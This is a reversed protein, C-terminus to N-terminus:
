QQIFATISESLSPIIKAVRDSNNKPLSTKLKSVVEKPFLGILADLCNTSTKEDGMIAAVNAANWLALVRMDHLIMSIYWRQALRDIKRGNTIAQTIEDKAAIHKLYQLYSPIVSAFADYRKRKETDSLGDVQVAMAAKTMLNSCGDPPLRYEEPFSGPVDNFEDTPEIRVDSEALTKLKECGENYKWGLSFATWALTYDQANLVRTACEESKLKLALADTESKAMEFIVNLKQSLEPTIQLQEGKNVPESKQLEHELQRIETKIKSRIQVNLKEIEGCPGEGANSICNGLAMQALFIIALINSSTVRM